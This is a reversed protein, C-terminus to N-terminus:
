SGMQKALNNAIMESKEAMFAIDKGSFSNDDWFGLDADDKWADNLRVDFVVAGSEDLADLADDLKKRTWPAEPRPGLGGITYALSPPVEIRRAGGVRMTHLGEELGRVTRGNGHHVLYASQQDIKKLPAGASPRVYQAYSVILVDGWRPERGEGIASDVYRLGNKLVAGTGPSPTPAPGAPTEDKASSAQGDGDDPAAWAALPGRFGLALLATGRAIASRRGLSSGSTHDASSPSSPTTMELPRHGSAWPRATRGVDLATGGLCAALVVLVVITPATM